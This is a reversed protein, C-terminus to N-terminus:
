VDDFACLAPLAPCPTLSNAMVDELTTRHLFLHINASLGEWLRNSLLQEHTGSLAGKAGAGTTLADMTEEVADLIEGIRIDKPCRSLQYGGKRGRLSLVLDRRRLKGLLQELYPLSISQRESIEYISVMGEAQHSALDVMAVLAYRGRTSLRM